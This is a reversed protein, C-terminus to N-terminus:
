LNIKLVEKENFYNNNIIFINNLYKKMKNLNNGVIFNNKNFKLDKIYRELIFLRFILKHNKYEKITTFVLLISILIMNLKRYYILLLITLIFSIYITILHSMKFSFIKNFIMNLLKSGDLPIIPLLNFILISINYNEFIKYFYSNNDILNTIIIFLIIQFLIGGLFLMFESIFKSNIDYEFITYGGFPYINIKKIKFNFILAM